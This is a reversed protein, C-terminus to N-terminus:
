KRQEKVEVCLHMFEWERVVVIALLRASGPVKQRQM